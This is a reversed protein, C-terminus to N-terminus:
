ITILKGYQASFQAPVPVREGSRESRPVHVRRFTREDSRTHYGASSERRELFVRYILSLYVLSRLSNTCRCSYRSVVIAFFIGFIKLKIM